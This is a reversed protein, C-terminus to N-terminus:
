PILAKRLGVGAGLCDCTTFHELLSEFFPAAELRRIAEKFPQPYRFFVLPRKPKSQRFPAQEKQCTDLSNALRGRAQEHIAEFIIKVEKEETSQWSLLYPM